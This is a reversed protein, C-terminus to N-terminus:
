RQRAAAMDVNHQQRGQESKVLTEGARVVRWGGDDDRRLTTVSVNGIHPVPTDDRPGRATTVATYILGGHSVVLSTRGPAAAAVEELAAMCRARMEAMTEIGEATGAELAAASPRADDDFEGRSFAAWTRPFRELCAAASIGQFVGLRRERLRPDKYVALGLSSAVAAATDAARRLDSSVIHGLNAYNPDSSFREKLAEALAAAQARGRATLDSESQGQLVGAANAETEGHRLLLVQTTPRGAMELARTFNAAIQDRAILLRSRRSDLFLLHASATHNAKARM